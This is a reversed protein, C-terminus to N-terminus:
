GRASDVVDETMAETMAGVASDAARGIEGGQGTMARCRSDVQLIGIAGAMFLIVVLIWAGVQKM